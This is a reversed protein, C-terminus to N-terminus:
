LHVPNSREGVRANYYKKRYTRKSKNKNKNKYTDLTADCNSCILRFNNICGIIDGNCLIHKKYTSLRKNKNECEKCCFKLQSRKELKKNCVICFLNRDKKKTIKNNYKAACSQGCFKNHRHDYDLEKQCYLCKTSNKYYEEIRKEKQQKHTKKSALWGLKGAESKSIKM